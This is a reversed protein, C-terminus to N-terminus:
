GGDEDAISVPQWPAVGVHLMEESKARFYAQGPPQGREGPIAIFGQAGFSKLETVMMFCAGFLGGAETTKPDIQVVDGVALMYGTADKM